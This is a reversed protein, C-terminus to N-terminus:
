SLIDPIKKDLYQLFHSDQKWNEQPFRVRHASGFSADDHIYELLETIKGLTTTKDFELLYYEGSKKLREIGYRSLKVRIRLCLFINEVSEPLSEQESIFSSRIYDVDNEDEVSELQQFFSIKESESAFLKDSIGYPLSLELACSLRHVTKNERLENVKDELMQLYLSIGVMHTKGSQAVGLVEGAGRIELDHMAIEFGSGPENYNM